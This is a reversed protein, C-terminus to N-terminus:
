VKEPTGNKRVYKVLEFDPFDTKQEINWDDQNFEPFFVDGDYDKKVYSLFMRDAVPLAQAYVSAGGSIFIERGYSRAKEMGEEFSKCIDVGSTPPLLSSIVVNNRNPLPRGISLFTKHGMVVTNGATFNKFNKLDDPLHWPLQNNKGIVRNKAMAAIITIM